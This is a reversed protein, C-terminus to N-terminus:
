QAGIVKGNIDLMMRRQAEETSQILWKEAQGRQMSSVIQDAQARGVAEGLRDRGTRVGFLWDDSMQLGDKTMGLSGSGYKYEAIVYDPPPKPNRWIDDVGPANWRKDDTLREFGHSEM